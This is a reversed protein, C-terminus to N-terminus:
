ERAGHRRLVEAIANHKWYLAHELPTTGDRSALNPDAGKELLLRVVETHGERVADQLRTWYTNCWNPDAGCALM